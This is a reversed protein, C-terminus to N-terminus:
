LCAAAPWIEGATQGVARNTANTYMMRAAVFRVNRATTTSPLWTTIRADRNATLSNWVTNSSRRDASCRATPAPSINNLNM